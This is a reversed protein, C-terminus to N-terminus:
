PASVNIQVWESYASGASNTAKVRIGSSEVAKVKGSLVGDSFSLGEPSFGGGWALTPSGTVYSSFDLSFSDGVTLNFPDPIDSWVPLSVTPTTTTPTTPTTTTPTTTTPTPTTTASSSPESVTFSDEYYISRNSGHEKIYKCEGRVRVKYTGSKSPVTYSMSSSKVGDRFSEWKVRKWIFGGPKKIEWGVYHLPRNDLVEAEYTDYASFSDGNDFYGVKAVDIYQSEKIFGSKHYVSITVEHYGVDDSTLTTRMETKTLDDPDPYGIARYKGNIHMNVMILGDIEVDVVLEDGTGFSTKNFSVSLEPECNYKDSGPPKSHYKHAKTDCIYYDEGCSPCTRKNEDADLQFSGCVGNCQKVTIKDPPTITKKETKLWDVRNVQDDYGFVRKNVAQLDSGSLAEYDAILNDYAINYGIKETATAKSRTFMPTITNWYFEDIQTNLMELQPVIDLATTTQDIQKVISMVIAPASEAALGVIAQIANLRSQKDIEAIASVIANQLNVMQELVGNEDQIDNWVSNVVSLSTNFNDQSASASESYVEHFFLTALFGVVLLWAFSRFIRNLM